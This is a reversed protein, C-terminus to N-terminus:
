RGGPLVQLGASAIRGSRLGTATITYTGTPNKTLNEGHSGAGAADAPFIGMVGNTPGTWSFRINEGPEFGSATATYRDGIKAQCSSLKLRAADADAV